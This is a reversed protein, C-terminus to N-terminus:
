SDKRILTHAQELVADSIDLGIAEATALDITLFFEANEVPLDGPKAGKLVQDALRAAQKGMTFSDFAFSTLAGPFVQPVSIPLKKQRAAETWDKIHPIVNNDPVLFIADVDEPISAIAQANQELTLVEYPVLEINLEKATESISKFATVSPLENVSYPVYVQEIRPDIDILWQLRRPDGGANTIGTVNYAPKTLNEVLGAQVPNNVPAFIIPTTDTAKRAATAADTTVALILDVNEKVLHQIYPNVKTEDTIAGEYIYKISQGEVYGLETMKSRFGEIVPDLSPVRNIVGVTVIKPEPQRCSIMLSALIILFFALCVPTTHKM